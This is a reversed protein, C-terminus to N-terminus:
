TDATPASDAGVSRRINIRMIKDYDNWIASQFAIGALSGTLSVNKSGVSNLYNESSKVYSFSFLESLYDDNEVVVAAAAAAAADAAAANVNMHRRNETGIDPQWYNDNYMDIGDVSDCDDDVFIDESDNGNWGERNETIDYEDFEYAQDGYSGINLM